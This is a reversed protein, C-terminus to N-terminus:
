RFNVILWLLTIGEINVQNSDTILPVRESFLLLDEDSEYFCVMVRRRCVLLVPSITIGYACTLTFSDVVATAAVQSKLQSTHLQMNAKVEVCIGADDLENESDDNEEVDLQEDERVVVATGQGSQSPAARMNPTGHWTDFSGLGIAGTKLGAEAYVAKKELTVTSFQSLLKAIAMVVSSELETQDYQWQTEQIKFLLHKDQEFKRKCKSHDFLYQLKITKMTASGFDHSLQLRTESFATNCNFPPKAQTFLLVTSLVQDLVNM